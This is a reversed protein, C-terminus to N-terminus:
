AESGLQQLRKRLAAIMALRNSTWFGSYDISHLMETMFGIDTINAVAACSYQYQQRRVWSEAVAKLFPQDHIRSIALARAHEATEKEAYNMLWKQDDCRKLAKEIIPRNAHHGDIIEHLMEESCIPVISELALFFQAGEKQTWSGGETKQLDRLQRFLTLKQENDYSDIESVREKKWQDLEKERQEAARQRAEKRLVGIRESIENHVSRFHCADLAFSNEALLAELKEPDAIKAIARFVLRYDLCYRCVRVYDDQETIKNFGREAVDSFRSLWQPKRHSIGM